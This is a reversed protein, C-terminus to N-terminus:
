TFQEKGTAPVIFNVRGPDTVYDTYSSYSAAEPVSNAALRRDDSNLLPEISSARSEIRSENTGMRIYMLGYPLTKPWKVGWSNRCVWYAQQFGPEKTNVGEDCWGLIEIAHGGMLPSSPAHQYVSKGDYQYLDKHVYVTGVIPGHNYIEAKMNRINFALRKKYLDTGRPVGALDLCLASTGKSAFVRDKKRDARSSSQFMYDLVSTNAKCEDLAGGKLNEYPYDVEKAIGHSVIYPHTLEPIGGRSCDFVGNGLCALLEQVSLSNRVRGGTRLSVRDALSDAVAFAWCSACKGQDRVPVLMSEKWKFYSPLELARGDAALLLNHRKVDSDKPQYSGLRATSFFRRVRRHNHLLWLVTVIAIVALIVSMSFLRQNLKFMTRWLITPKVSTPRQVASVSTTDPKRDVGMLSIIIVCSSIGSKRM